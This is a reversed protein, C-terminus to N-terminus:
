KLHCGEEPFEARIIGQKYFSIQEDGTDFRFIVKWIYVGSGVFSGETNKQNWVLWSVYGEPTLRGADLLDQECLSQRSSHVVKGLHDIISIEANYGTQSFVTVKSMCNLAPTLQPTAGATPTECSSLSRDINGAADLGRPPLWKEPTKQIVEGVQEGAANIIPVVTELLTNSQYKIDDGTLVAGILPASIGSTILTEESDTGSTKIAPPNSTLNNLNAAPNLVACDNAEISSTGREGPIIIQYTSDELLKVDLIVLLKYSTDAASYGDALCTSADSYLILTNWLAEDEPNATGLPEVPKNRATM